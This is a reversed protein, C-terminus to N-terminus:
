EEDEKEAIGEKDFIGTDKGRGGFGVTLEMEQLRKVREREKWECIKM